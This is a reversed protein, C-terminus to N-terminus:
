GFADNLRDLRGDFQTKVLAHFALTFQEVGTQLRGFRSRQSVHKEGLAFRALDLAHVLVGRDAVDLADGDDAGAGHAAADGHVEGAHPHGHVDDIDIGPRDFAAKGHDPVIVHAAHM